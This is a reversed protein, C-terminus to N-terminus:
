RTTRAPRRAEVVGTDNDIAFDVLDRLTSAEAEPREHVSEPLRIATIWEAFEARDDRYSLYERETPALALDVERRAYALGGM